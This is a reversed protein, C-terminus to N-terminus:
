NFQNMADDIGSNLTVEVAHAARLIGHEIKENETASPQSLVHNIEDGNVPPRGIGIRLRFFDQTGLEAIISKIGNHGGAGGSQRLRLDGPNLDLEDYVVILDSPTMHFHSLIAVLSRGSENVYTRPKALVVPTDGVFGEGSLFLKRRRSMDINWLCALQDVCLYGLNHRTRAYQKGPNGLGFVLKRNRSVPDKTHRFPQKLISRISKM